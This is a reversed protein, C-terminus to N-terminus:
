LSWGYLGLVQLNGKCYFLSQNVIAFLQSIQFRLDIM